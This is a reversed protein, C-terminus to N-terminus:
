VTFLLRAEGGLEIQDGDELAHAVGDIDLREIRNGAKFIKTKNGSEPLGGKDAYLFFRGEAIDYNIIAHNRSVFPNSAGKIADYAAEEKGLFVIDNIHMRGSSLQPSRGRGIHYRQKEAANLLYTEKDTQGALVTLKALATPKIDHQNTVINLGYNGQKLKFDPLTEKCLHIEFYWNQPLEIYHNILKRKLEDNKFKDTRDVYLAVKALEEEEENTCLVYLALGIIGTNKEDIYPHLANLIFQIIEERKKPAPPLTSKAVQVPETALSEDAPAPLVSDTPPFQTVPAAATNVVSTTSPKEESEIGITEKLKKLFKKM